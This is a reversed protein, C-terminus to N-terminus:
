PKNGAGATLVLTVAVPRHDSGMADLLRYDRVAVRPSVLVHDIPIGVPGLSTPWTPHWGQGLAADRLGLNVLYGFAPSWPTVNLDGAVIAQEGAVAAQRVREAAFGLMHDRLRGFEGGPRVAHLAAVRVCAPPVADACARFEVIPYDIGFPQHIVAQELPRRSLVLLAFPQHRSGPTRLRHPFRTAAEAYAPEQQGALETLVIIDADTRRLFASLAAADAHMGNLNATVLRLAPGQGAVALPPAVVYPWLPALNGLGLGLALVFARTRRLLLALLALGVGAVLYQAPFHVLVDFAPLVRALLAGLVALALIAIGLWLLLAFFRGLRTYRSKETM